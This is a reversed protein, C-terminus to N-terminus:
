VADVAALLEFGRGGQECLAFASAKAQEVVQKGEHMSLLVILSEPLEKVLTRAVM